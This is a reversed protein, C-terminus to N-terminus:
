ELQSIYAFIKERGPRAFFDKKLNFDNIPETIFEIIAKTYMGTEGAKNLMGRETFMNLMSFLIELTLGTISQEEIMRSAEEYYELASKMGKFQKVEALKGLCYVREAKVMLYQECLSILDKNGLMEYCDDYRMQKIMIDCILFLVSAFLTKNEIESYFLLLEEFVEFSTVQEGTLYKELLRLYELNMKHNKDNLKLETLSSYETIMEALGARGGVVFFLRALMFVAESEEEYNKLTHFIKRANKLVDYADQYHCVTTYAEGLNVLVMGEGNKDGLSALITNAGKYNEIAKEFDERDYYYNGYNLMLKADQELNGITKNTEKAKEWYAEAAAHNKKMFFINGLNVQMGSVNVPLGANIYCGLASEFNFVASDINNGRYLQVLGLLNFSKGRIENSVTKSEIISGCIETVKDFNSLDFEAAAIDALIEERKAQEEVQKLMNNLIFIGEAPSGTNILCKGKLITLEIVKDQTLIEKLLQNIVELSSKRDGLRFLVIALRYKVRLKEKESVPLNIIHRLIKELYSFASVREAADAEKSLLTFASSYDNGMEYHRALEVLSFGPINKKILEAVKLHYEKKNKVSSYIYKKLGGSTFELVPSFRESSLINRERLTSIVPQVNEPPANLIVSLLEETVPVEFLSLIEAAYYEFSGLMKVQHNYIVDQSSSLLKLKEKDNSIVPLGPHFDVIDLLVLDKIFSCISGPMMDAYLLIIKKTDQKPFFVGFSKDIYEILNSETFPTLNVAILNNIESALYASASDETIIFKINNVQFVPILQKLIEINFDDLRNYEDLLIIFQNDKAIKIIVSKIADILGPSENDILSQVSNIFGGELEDFIFDSYVLQRLLTKWLPEVGSKNLYIVRNYRYYVEHLVSTKGAGETGRISLVEGDSQRNIFTNILALVDKRDTFTKAPIWDRKLEEVSVGLVHLMELVTVFREGPDSQLLKKVVEILRESYPSDPFDFNGELHSKLIEIASVNNFPLRNYILKYFLMGLSYLDVRYDHDGGSLLEPAIYERTGRPHFDSTDYSHRALGLDLLMIVPKNGILSILINEPKLDYYIYNSQHLYYIISSIQKIVSILEEESGAHYDSLNNGPFYELTIFYSGPSIQFEDDESVVVRGTERPKIINPHNLRSLIFFEERFLVAEEDIVDPALIKIAIDKGPLLIDECLFVSSRGEGIKKKIIFRKNIM